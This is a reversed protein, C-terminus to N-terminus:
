ERPNLLRPSEAPTTQVRRPLAHSTQQLYASRALLLRVEAALADPLCPKFVLVDIGAERIRALETDRLALGTIAVLIPSRDGTHHRIQRCLEIGDTGPLAVDVVAVDPCSVIIHSMAGTADEAQDVRFGCTLFFVAYMERTDADDEVLLVHPLHAPDRESHSSGTFDGTSVGKDALNGASLICTTTNGAVRSSPQAPDVV